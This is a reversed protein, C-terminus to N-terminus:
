LQIPIANVSLPAKKAILILAILGKLLAQKPGYM